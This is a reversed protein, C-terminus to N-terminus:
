NEKAPPGPISAAFVPRACLAQPFIPDCFGLRGGVLLGLDGRARTTHAHRALPKKMAPRFGRSIRGELAM